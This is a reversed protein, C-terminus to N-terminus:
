TGHSRWDDPPGEHLRRRIRMAAERLSAVDQPKAALAELHEAVKGLLERLWLNERHVDITTDPDVM